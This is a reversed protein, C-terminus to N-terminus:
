EYLIVGFDLPINKMLQVRSLDINNAVVLQYIVKRADDSSKLVNFVKNDVLIIYDGSTSKPQEKNGEKEPLNESVFEEAEEEAEEEEQSTFENDKAEFELRLTEILNNILEGLFKRYEAPMKGLQKLLATIVGNKGMVNAKLITLEDLDTVDQLQAIVGEFVHDLRKQFQSRLESIKPDIDALPNLGQLSEVDIGESKGKKIATSDLANNDLM